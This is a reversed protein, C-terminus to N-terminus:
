LVQHTAATDDDLPSTCNIMFRNIVHERCLLWGLALLLERSGDSMDHPLSAFDRSCFGRQQLEHKVFIVLEEATYHLKNSVYTILSCNSSRIMHIYMSVLLLFNVINKRNLIHCNVRQYNAARNLHLMM